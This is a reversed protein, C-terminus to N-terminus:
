FCKTPCNFVQPPDPFLSLSTLGQYRM